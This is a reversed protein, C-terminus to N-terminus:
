EHNATVLSQQKRRAREERKRKRYADIDKDRHRRDAEAQRKRREEADMRPKTRERFTASIAREVSFGRELRGRITNWNIGTERSLEALTFNKGNWELSRNSRRNNAQQTPNAWRCNSPAYHGNCDIRDISMGEPREGMDRLFGSFLSWEDCIRIGRGGYRPYAPNNPNLCRTRMAAWAQYTPTVCRDLCAGHRELTRTTRRRAAQYHKGCLRRALVPKECDEYACQNM